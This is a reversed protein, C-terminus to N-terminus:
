GGRIEIAFTRDTTAANAHTITMQLSGSVRSIAAYTTALAAAANATLPTFFAYANENMNPAEATTITTTTANATLTVVITANSRGRILSRIADVWDREKNGSPALDKM